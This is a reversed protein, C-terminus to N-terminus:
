HTELACSRFGGSCCLSRLGQVLILRDSRKKSVRKSHEESQWSRVLPDEDFVVERNVQSSFKALDWKPNQHRHLGPHNSVPPLPRQSPTLFNPYRTDLRSSLRLTHLPYGDGEFGPRMSRSLRNWIMTLLALWYVFGRPGVSSSKSSV